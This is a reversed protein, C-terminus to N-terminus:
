TIEMLKNMPYKYQTPYIDEGVGEREGDRNIGWDLSPIM